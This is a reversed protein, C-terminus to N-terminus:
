TLIELTIDPTEVSIENMGTQKTLYINHSYCFPARQYGILCM